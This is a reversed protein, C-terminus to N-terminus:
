EEGEHEEEKVYSIGVAQLLLDLKGDIDSLKESVGSAPTERLVSGRDQSDEPCIDRVEM